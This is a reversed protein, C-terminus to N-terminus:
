FACIDRGDSFSGSALSENELAYLRASPGCSIYLSDINRLYRIVDLTYRCSSKRARPLQHSRVTASGVRVSVCFSTLIGLLRSSNAKESSKTSMRDLLDTMFTRRKM